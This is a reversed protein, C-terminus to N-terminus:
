GRFAAGAAEGNPDARSAMPGLTSLVGVKFAGAVFAEGASSLAVPDAERL